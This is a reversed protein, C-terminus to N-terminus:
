STSRNNVAGCHWPACNRHDPAGKAEGPPLEVPGMEDLLLFPDFQMFGQIPFPRRVVFGEGELTRVADVVQQISRTSKGTKSM